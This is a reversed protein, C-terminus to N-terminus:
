SGTELHHMKPIASISFKLLFDSENLLICKLSWKKKHNSLENGKVTSYYDM